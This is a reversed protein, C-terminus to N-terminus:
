GDYRKDYRGIKVSLFVGNLIEKRGTFDLTKVCKAYWGFDNTQILEEGKARWKELLTKLEKPLNEAKSINVELM